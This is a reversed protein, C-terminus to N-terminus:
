RTHAVERTVLQGLYDAVSLGLRIGAIRFDTWTAEDVNIRAIQQQSGLPKSARRIIVVKRAPRKSKRSM